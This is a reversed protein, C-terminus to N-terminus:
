LINSRGSTPITMAFGKWAFSAITQTKDDLFFQQAKNTTKLTNLKLHTAGHAEVVRNMAMKSVIFFPREIDLGFEKNFGKKQIKL